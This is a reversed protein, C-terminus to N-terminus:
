QRKRKTLQKAKTTIKRGVSKLKSPSVDDLLLDRNRYVPVERVEKIQNVFLAVIILRIVGSLLFMSLFSSGHIQPLLPIVFGGTFSGLSFGLFSLANYIAIYRIRNDQPSADFIFLSSALQFGAWTFGSFIQAGILWWFNHSVTWAIPVFPVLFATIKLIKINGAKDTRKGWWSLFAITALASASNIISYIVYNLKLEKLMYPSFFPGSLMVSFNFMACFIIFKGVNTSPLRKGIEWISTHVKKTITTFTPEEMRSLFYLSVLRGFMAGIFIVSFALRPNGTLLQLIGAAIYSFLGAVLGSIRNRRGFYKGRIEEPVLDAMMSGWAPQSTADFITSLSMFTILWMVQNTSFIYPILLIPVWMLAHFFAMLMVLGKRSGLKESLIPAFLQAISMMGNPIGSLLGIQATTAKMILAFPTIYNQTLGLMAAYASGDMISAKLSKKVQDKSLNSPM